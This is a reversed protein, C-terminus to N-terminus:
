DDGRRRLGARLGIFICLLIFAIGLPAGISNPTHAQLPGMYQWAQLHHSVHHHM